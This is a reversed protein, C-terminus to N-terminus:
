KVELHSVARLCLKCGCTVANAIRHQKNSKLHNIVARRNSKVVGRAAAWVLVDWEKSIEDIIMSENFMVNDKM